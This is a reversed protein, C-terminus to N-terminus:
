RDAGQQPPSGRELAVYAGDRLTPVADSADLAAAIAVNDPTGRAVHERGSGTAALLSALRPRADLFAAVAARAEPSLAATRGGAAAHAVAGAGILDEWAVRLPGGADHWREGAAVIGITGGAGALEGAARGVAGANRLCGAIVHRAGADRAAESLASGNPSPLVIAEGEPFDLLSHPSLSWGAPGDAGEDATIRRTALHAGLREAHDAETGDHWRYPHVRGGRGVVLDVATTFSLVDVIVIVESTPALCELGDRGWELRVRHGSQDFRNAGDIRPTEDVM